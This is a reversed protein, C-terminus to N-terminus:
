VREWFENKALKPNTSNNKKARVFNRDRPARVCVVCMVAIYLNIWPFGITSIIATFHTSHQQQQQNGAAKHLLLQLYM